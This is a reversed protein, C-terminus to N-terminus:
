GWEDWDFVWLLLSIVGISFGFVDFIVGLWDFSVICIGSFVDFSGIGFGVFGICWGVFCIGFGVIGVGLGYSWFNGRWGVVVVIFICFIVMKLIEFMRWFFVGLYKLILFSCSFSWFWVSLGFM